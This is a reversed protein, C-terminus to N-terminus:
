TGPLTVAKVAKHSSLAGTGIMSVASVAPGCSAEPPRDSGPSRAAACRSM